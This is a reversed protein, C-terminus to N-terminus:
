IEFINNTWEEFFKATEFNIKWIQNINNLSNSVIIKTNTWGIDIWIYM